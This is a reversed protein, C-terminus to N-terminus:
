DPSTVNTSFDAIVNNNCAIPSSLTSKSFPFVRVRLYSMYVQNKNCLFANNVDLFLEKM